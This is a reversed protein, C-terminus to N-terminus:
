LIKPNKILVDEDAGCIKVVPSITVKGHRGEPNATILKM